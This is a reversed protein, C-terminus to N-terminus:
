RTHWYAIPYQDSGTLVSALDMTGSLPGLRPIPREAFHAPQGPTANAIREEAPKPPQSKREQWVKWAEETNYVSMLCLPRGFRVVAPLAAVNLGGSCAAEKFGIRLEDPTKAALGRHKDLSTRAKGSVVQVGELTATVAFGQPIDSPVPTAASGVRTITLAVVFAVAVPASRAASPQIM